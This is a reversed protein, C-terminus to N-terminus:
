EITVEVETIESFTMAVGLNVEAESTTTAATRIEYILHAPKRKELIELAPTLDDVVEGIVVAFTNKAVNEEIDVQVGGMASSVAAALVTPNCPGRSIIKQIIRNRRQEVSLGGDRPLGYQDEWYDLLLTSTAPTTENMLETCIGKVQGLLTGIAQFIWLGVYSNGYVPSVYDIIEQATEDTLIARMMETPQRM